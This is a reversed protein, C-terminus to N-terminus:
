GAAPGRPNRARGVEAVMERVARPLRIRDLWPRAAPRLRDLTYIVKRRTTEPGFWALYGACNLSFFSLADADNLLLGELDGGPREHGAVLEAVRDVVRDPFHPDLLSAAERAGGEAHAMKFAVYDPARHEVREAAESRLREVDHLLAALQLPLSAFPELRLVWQWTDVAHDLDARVLPLSTDHLGRHVREFARFADTRSAANRWPWLRQYRLLVEEPRRVGLSLTFPRGEVAHARRDFALLDADPDDWEPGIRLVDAPM